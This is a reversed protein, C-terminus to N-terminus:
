HTPLRSTSVALPPASQHAGSMFCSLSSMSSSTSESLSFSCHAPGATSVPPQRFRPAISDIPIKGLARLLAVVATDTSNLSEDSSCGSSLTTDAEDGDSGPPEELHAAAGIRRAAGVPPVSAGAFDRSRSALSGRLPPAASEAFDLSVGARRKSGALGASLEHEDSADDEWEAHQAQSTM